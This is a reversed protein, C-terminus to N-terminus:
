LKPISSSTGRPCQYSVHTNLYTGETKYAGAEELMMSDDWFLLEREFPVETTEQLRGLVPEYAYGATNLLVIELNTANIMGLM